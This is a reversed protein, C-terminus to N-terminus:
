EETYQLLDNLIWFHFSNIHAQGGFNWADEIKNCKLTVRQTSIVCPVSSLGLLTIWDIYWFCNQMLKQAPVNQSQQGSGRREGCDASNM